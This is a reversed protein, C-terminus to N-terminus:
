GDAALRVEQAKSGVKSELLRGGVKDWVFRDAVISGDVVSEGLGYGADVLMEDLDSNLPNASFAVGATAADVMEMVTAAFAPKHAGAYSFVRHDFVSAFCARVAAELGEPSVGLKTEFVGAFSAGTGDEEPASSRVAALRGPWAEMARRVTDLCATQAASLPLRQALRKLGVCLRPGEPTGLKPEAAAWERSATVAATWKKGGVARVPLPKKADLAALMAREYPADDNADLRVSPPRVAGAVPASQATGM